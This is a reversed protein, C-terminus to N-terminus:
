RVTSYVWVEKSKKPTKAKSWSPPVSIYSNDFCCAYRQQVAKESEGKWSGISNLLTRTVFHVHSAIISKKGKIIKKFAGEETCFCLM